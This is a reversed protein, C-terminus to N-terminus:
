SALVTGLAWNLRPPDPLRSLKKKIRRLTFNFSHGDPWLVFTSTGANVM